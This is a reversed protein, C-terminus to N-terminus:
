NNTGCQVFKRDAYHHVCEQKPIFIEGRKQIDSRVTIATLRPLQREPFDTHLARKSDFTNTAAVHWLFFILLLSRTFYLMISALM